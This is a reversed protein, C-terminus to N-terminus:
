EVRLSQAPDICTARRAPFYSAAMAVLFLLLTVCVYTLPDTSKVGYLFASLLHTSLLGAITGSAAGIFVLKTAQFIILQLLDARRAGLALRIGFERIRARVTFALISYLGMASLCLALIGAFLMVNQGLLVPTYELRVQEDMPMDEGMPVDPDVSQVVQRIARLAPALDGAVRIAFRVDGERTANTQWYSLYLHPEPAHAQSEPQLDAAVGVVQFPRSRIFLTQGIAPGSPWLREALTHNVIAVLPTGPRDRDDFERGQFLPTRLTHFFNQGVDQLSVELGASQTETQPSYSVRVRRGSQWDWVLGEGGEM